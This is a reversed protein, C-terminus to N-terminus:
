FPIVSIERDSFTATGGTPTTYKATFTNSGPTLGTQLVAYTFRDAENVAGSIFRWGARTSAAITTAGSVAYSMNSGGTATSNSAAATIVVFAFPGTTLPGVTPGVTALDGFTAITSTTEGTAVVAYAPIRQAIGNAGTAAFHAGATTAKAPATELLNDRVSANWQAATLATNSVGTLPASWTM